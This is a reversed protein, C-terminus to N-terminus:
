ADIVEIRRDCSECDDEGLDRCAACYDDSPAAGAEGELYGIVLERFLV